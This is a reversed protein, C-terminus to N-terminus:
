FISKRSIIIYSKISESFLFYKEFEHFINSEKRTMLRDM